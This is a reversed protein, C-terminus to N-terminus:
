KGAVGIPEAAPINSLTRALRHRFAEPECGISTAADPDRREGRLLLNAVSVILAAAAVVAMMGDRADAKAIVASTLTKMHGSLKRM